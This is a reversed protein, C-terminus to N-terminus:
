DDNSASAATRAPRRPTPIEPLPHHEKAAVVATTAAIAGGPEAGPTPADYRVSLCGAARQLWDSAQPQRRTEGRRGVRVAPAGVPQRDGVAAPGRGGGRRAARAPHISAPCRRGSRGPRYRAPVPSGFGSLLVLAAIVAMFCVGATGAAQPGWREAHTCALEWAPVSAAVLGILLLDGPHWLGCM